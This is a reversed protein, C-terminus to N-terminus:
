LRPFLTETLIMDDLLMLNNEELFARRMRGYKGLPKDSVHSLQIDPILYDGLHTYTFNQAMVIGGITKEKVKM